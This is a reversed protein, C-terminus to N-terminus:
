VEMYKCEIKNDMHIRLGVERKNSCYLEKKFEYYKEMTDFTTAKIIIM